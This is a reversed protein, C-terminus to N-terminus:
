NLPAAAFLVGFLECWVVVSGFQTADLDDPLAYNQNGKNGKLKGLSYFGATVDAASTPNPHEVLYVALDPGNTVMFREFRLLEGGDPLRYHGALGEAQHMADAGNFNGSRELIPAEPMAESITKDEAQEFMTMVESMAAAQDLPTMAEVEAHTPLAEDVVEDIVLPSLLYWAVALGLLFTGVISLGIWKNM